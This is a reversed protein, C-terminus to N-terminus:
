RLRDPFADSMLSVPWEKLGLIRQQFDAVQQGPTFLIVAHSIHEHVRLHTRDLLDYMLDDVLQPKRAAM